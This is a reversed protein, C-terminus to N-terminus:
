AADKQVCEEQEKQKLAQLHKTFVHTINGTKEESSALDFELKEEESVHMIAKLMLKMSYEDNRLLTNIARIAYRKEANKEFKNSAVELLKEADKESRGLTLEKHPMTGMTMEMITSPKMKCDLYLQATTLNVKHKKAFLFVTKCAKNGTALAAVGVKETNTLGRSYLNTRGIVQAYEKVSNFESVKVNELKEDVWARWCDGTSCHVFVNPTGEEIVKGERDYLLVGEKWFIEPKAFNHLVPLKRGSSLEEDFKENYKPLEMSYKTYALIIEKEVGDIIAVKTTSVVSKQEKTMTKSKQKVSEADESSNVSEITANAVNGTAVETAIAKEELMGNSKSNNISTAEAAVNASENAVVTANNHINEM